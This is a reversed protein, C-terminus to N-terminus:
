LTETSLKSTIYSLVESKDIGLATAFEEYLLKEADHFFREDSVHLKKGAAKQAESHLYLTKILGILEVRDGRLIIARYEEKRKKEDDIWLAGQQTPMADILKKIEDCSLMYRMKGVLMQNDVPVMITSSPSYHPKLIYYKSEVGNFKKETIDSITCIGETGYIVTDNIKFM